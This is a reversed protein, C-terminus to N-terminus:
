RVIEEARIESPTERVEGIPLILRASRDFTFYNWAWNVFVQVKNRFGVLQMLHLVLWLIWAVYGTARLGNPLEVVAANRGITAMIGRDTFVFPKGELGCMRAEIQRAVHRAGQMAVPALQPHLTGAADKSGALDGVVFVEPHGPVSLDPNVELRGGRSLPLGLDAALPHARVGAAWVLTHAPLVLGNNLHVRTEEVRVVNRGLMVQVGKKRLKALAHQQLDAHFPGLLQDSAEVLTIAVRTVDLRPFDKALVNAALEHLAGAMEVGTPGGGVVVM